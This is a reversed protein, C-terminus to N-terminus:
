QNTHEIIFIDIKTVKKLNLTYYVYIRIQFFVKLPNDFIIPLVSNSTKSM